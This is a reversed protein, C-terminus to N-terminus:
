KIFVWPSKIAKKQMGFQMHEWVSSKQVSPDVSDMKRTKPASILKAKKKSVEMSIM